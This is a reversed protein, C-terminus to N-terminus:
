VFNKLRKRFDDPDDQKSPRQQAFTRDPVPALVQLMTVLEDPRTFWGNYLSAETTFSAPSDGAAAIDTQDLGRVDLSELIMQACTPGCYNDELQRRYLIPRRGTKITM